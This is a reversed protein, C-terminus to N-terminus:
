KPRPIPMPTDALVNLEALTQSHVVEMVHRMFGAMENPSIELDKAVDIVSRRTEKPCIRVGEKILKQIVMKLAIEGLRAETLAM